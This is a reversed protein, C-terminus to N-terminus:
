YQIKGEYLNAIPFCLDYDNWELDRNDIEFKSFKETNLYKNILPNLSSSLFPYFDVTRSSNDNFSLLLKHGGLYKAQEITISQSDTIM